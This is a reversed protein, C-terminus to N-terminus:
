RSTETYKDLTPSPHAARFKDLAAGWQVDDMYSHRLCTSGLADCSMCTLRLHGGHGARDVVIEHQM